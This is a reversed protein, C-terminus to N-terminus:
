SDQVHDLMFQIVDPRADHGAPDFNQRAERVRGPTIVALSLTKQRNPRVPAIHALGVRILDATMEHPM